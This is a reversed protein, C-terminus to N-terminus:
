RRALAQYIRVVVLHQKLARKRHNHKTGPLVHRHLRVFEEFPESASRRPDLDKLARM